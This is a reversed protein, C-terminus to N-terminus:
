LILEQFRDDLFNFIEESAKARRLKLLEILDDEDLPLIYNRPLCDHCRKILEKRNKAKRFVLLGFVGKTDSFRGVLQDVEPNEVEKGYNKCEIFIWPCHINHSHQLSAFFGEKGSNTAVIDIRKRGEDIEREIKFNRLEPEFIRRLMLLSLRHFETEGTGRGKPINKLKKIWLMDLDFEEPNPIVPQSSGDKTVTKPEVALPNEILKGAECIKEIASIDMLGDLLYPGKKRYLRAHNHSVPFKKELEFGNSQLMFDVEYDEFERFFSKYKGSDMHYGDSIRKDETCKEKYKSDGHMSYYFLYGDGRLKERCYNLVELREVPVPMTSLVNILLVLHFKETSKVFEHPYVLKKFKGKFTEAEEFMKRAQDSEKKIKEFEVAGVKYGKKLLYLTNRLKAAGFDLVTTVNKDKLHDFLSEFVGELTKMPGPFNPASLTVDFVVEKLQEDNDEDIPVRFKYVSSEWLM